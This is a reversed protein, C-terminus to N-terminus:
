HNSDAVAAVAAASTALLAIRSLLLSQRRSSDYSIRSFVSIQFEGGCLTFLM